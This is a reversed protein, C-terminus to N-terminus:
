CRTAVSTRSRIPEGLSDIGPRSAQRGRQKLTAKSLGTAGAMWDMPPQAELGAATFRELERHVRRVSSKEPETRRPIGLRRSENQLDLKSYGLAERERLGEGDTPECLVNWIALRAFRIYRNPNPAWPWPM